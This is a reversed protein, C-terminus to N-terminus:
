RDTEKYHCTCPCPAYDTDTDLNWGRRDCGRHKTAEPTSERGKGANPKVELLTKISELAAEAAALATLRSLVADILVGDNDYASALAPHAAVAHWAQIREDAELHNLEQQASELDDLLGLLGEVAIVIRPKIDGTDHDRIWEARTRLAAREDTTTM